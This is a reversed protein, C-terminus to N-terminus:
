RKRKKCHTKIGKAALAHRGPEGHWGPDGRDFCAKPAHAMMSQKPWGQLKQGRKGLADKSEETVNIGTAVKKLNSRTSNDWFGSKPVYVDVLWEPPSGTKQVPRVVYFWEIDGHLQKGQEPEFSGPDSAAIFGAVKGARSTEWLDPKYPRGAFIREHQKREKKKAIEYGDHLLPLINSPYGDSHHYMLVSEDYDTGKEEVM